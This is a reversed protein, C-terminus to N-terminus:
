SAIVLQLPPDETELLTEPRVTPSACMATKSNLQYLPM